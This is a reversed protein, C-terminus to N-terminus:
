EKTKRKFDYRFMAILISVMSLLDGISSGIAGSILNYAFWFPSGLLSVRRIKKEDDMWFASTHLLVGAIPLLGIAGKLSFPSVGQARTNIVITVLGLAVIILNMGILFFRFHRKIFSTNKKQALVSSAAGAVDLVAGEFAGLLIYQLIYLVRSTVNLGIISSRKKQLYSLLFIVVATIGIIQALIEIFKM